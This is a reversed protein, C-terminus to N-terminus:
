SIRLADQLCISGEYLARGVIAGHTGQDVLRKLDDLTTVGGSAIVPFPSAKQIEALSQFNPGQRMGDKEIDTYVVAACQDTFDAVRQVLETAPTKSVDLWGETAVFGAKADVGLVLKGPFETCMSGFWRPDKLAATGVILRSLGLNLLRRISDENRVGGGLQVTKGQAVEMIRKIAEHNIISGSKAGDLDVCHLFQAGAQFWNQAVQCPYESFVTNRSYDGQRLRVCKGGLLDIAPWIQM